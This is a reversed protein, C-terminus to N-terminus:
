VTYSTFYAFALLGLGNGLYSLALIAKYSLKGVFLTGIMSGITLGFFVLSGLSGLQQNNLKLDQKLVKTAAPIAGHDLNNGMNLLFIFM